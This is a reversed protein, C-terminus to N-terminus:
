NKSKFLSKRLKKQIGWLTVRLFSELAIEFNMKSTGHLREIFTIPVERIHVTLEAVIKTMEIHFCFGYSELASLDIKSLLERRFVRFGATVDNVPLSLIAKAYRNAFRSLVTRYWVWNEVVGGTIWRSGIVMQLEPTANLTQILRLLDEPQHSGDADMEAIVDYRRDLGWRFGYVFATALGQKQGRNIVFIRKDIAALEECIQFTGDPSGDDVILINASPMLVLISSVLVKISSAENYTPVVILVDLQKM